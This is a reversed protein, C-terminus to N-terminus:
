MDLVGSSFIGAGGSQQTNQNHSWFTMAFDNNLQKQFHHLLFCSM